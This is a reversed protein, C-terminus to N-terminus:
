TNPYITWTGNANNKAYEGATILRLNLDLGVNKRLSAQVGQILIDRNDRVYPQPYGVEISLRKGDKTRFGESDRGTWGAEDLLKNAGAIDNGW